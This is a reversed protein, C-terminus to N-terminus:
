RPRVAAIDRESIQFEPVAKGAGLLINHLTLTAHTADSQGHNVKKEWGHTVQILDGSTQM